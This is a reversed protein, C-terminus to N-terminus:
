QKKTNNKFSHKLRAPVPYTYISYNYTRKFCQKLALPYRHCRVAPVSKLKKGLDKRGVWRGGGRGRDGGNLEEAGRSNHESGLQSKVLLASFM